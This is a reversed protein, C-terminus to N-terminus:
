WSEWHKEVFYGDVTEVVEAVRWDVPTVTTLGQYDYSDYPNEFGISTWTSGDWTAHDLFVRGYPASQLLWFMELNGPGRSMIAPAGLVTGAYPEPRNPDWPCWGGCAPDYARHAVGITGNTNFRGAALDIRNYGWSTAAPPTMVMAGDLTETAAVWDSAYSGNNWRHRLQYDYGTYFLDLRHPGWTTIAPDGTLKTGLPIVALPEWGHLSSDYVLHYLDNDITRGVIDIRGPGWSVAAPSGMFHGGLNEPGYLTWGGNNSWYHMLNHTGADTYFYDRRCSSWAAAAVHGRANAYGGRAQSLLGSEKTGLPDPSDEAACGAAAAALSIMVALRQHMPRVSRLAAAAPCRM